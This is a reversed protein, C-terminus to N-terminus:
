VFVATNLVPICPGVKNHGFPEIENIKNTRYGIGRITLEYKILYQGVNFKSYNYFDPSM